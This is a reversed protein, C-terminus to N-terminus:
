ARDGAPFGRARLRTRRTVGRRASRGRRPREARASGTWACTRSARWRAGAPSRAACSPPSSSPTQSDPLMGQEDIRARMAPEAMAAAVDAQIRRLIEAPTGAPAVLGNWGFAQFGPLITEAFTPVDPLWPVRTPTMVGIAKM